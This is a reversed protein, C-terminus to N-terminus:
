NPVVVVMGVLMADVQVQTLPLPADETQLQILRDQIRKNVLATSLDDISVSVYTDTAILNNSDDTVAMTIDVTRDDSNIPSATITARM